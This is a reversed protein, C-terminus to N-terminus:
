EEWVIVEKPKHRKVINKGGKCFLDAQLFISVPICLYIKLILSYPLNVQLVMLIFCAFLSRHTLKVLSLERHIYKAVM